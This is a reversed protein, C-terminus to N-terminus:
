GCKKGLGWVRFGFGWVGFRRFRRSSNGVSEGLPHMLHLGRSFRMKFAHPMVEPYNYTPNYTPYGYNYGM